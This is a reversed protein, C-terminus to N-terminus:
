FILKDWNDKFGDVNKVANLDIYDRGSEVLKLKQSIEGGTLIYFEPQTLIEANLNVLVFFINDKVKNRKINWCISEKRQIAKVQIKIQKGDKEALLDIEETNGLTIGVNFGRRYLEAGVFFEGALKSHNKSILAM